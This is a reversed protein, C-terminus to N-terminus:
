KPKAKLWARFSHCKDAYYSGNDIDEMPKGDPGLTVLTKKLMVAALEHLEKEQESLTAKWQEVLKFTNSDM